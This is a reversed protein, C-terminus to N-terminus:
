NNKNNRKELGANSIFIPIFFNIINNARNLTATELQEGLTTDEVKIALVYFKPAFGDQQKSMESMFEIITPLSINHTSFTFNSLEKETLLLFESKNETNDRLADFILVVEPKLNVIKSLYNELSIGASIFYFNEKQLIDKLKELIYVGVGDDKRLQNGLGVFVIKKNKIENLLKRLKEM